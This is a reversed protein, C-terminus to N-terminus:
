RLRALLPVDHIMWAPDPPHSISPSLYVTRETGGADIGLVIGTHGITRGLKADPVADVRYAAWIRALQAHTGLLYQFRHLLGREALYTRVSRPTDGVPDVSIAIVQVEKARRGLMDLTTRLSATILPCIDPCHVYLFTLLVAKGRYDSLSVPKGFQDRLTFGPARTAAITGNPQDFAPGTAVDTAPAPTSSSGCGSALAALVALALLAAPMRARDIRRTM